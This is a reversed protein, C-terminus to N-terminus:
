LRRSQSVNIRYIVSFVAGSFRPPKEKIVIEKCKSGANIWHVTYFESM